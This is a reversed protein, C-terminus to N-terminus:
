IQKISHFLYLAFVTSSLILYRSNETKRKSKDVLDLNNSAFSYILLRELEAELEDRVGNDPFENQVEVVPSKSVPNANKKAEELIKEDIASLDRSANFSIRPFIAEGCLTFVDPEFHSVQIKITENFNLPLGPLYQITIKQEELTPVHGMLPSLSIQSLKADSDEVDIVCFDLGLKGSNYLVVHITCPQDYPQISPIHLYPNM